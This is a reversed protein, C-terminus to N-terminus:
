GGGRAIEVRDLAPGGVPQALRREVPLVPLDEVPGPTGAVPGPLGVDDGLRQLLAAVAVEDDEAVGAHLRDAVVRQRRHRRQEGPEVARLAPDRHAHQVALRLPGPGLAVAEHQHLAVRRAVPVGVLDLGGPDGEHHAGGGAPEHGLPQAVRAIRPDDGVDRVLHAQRIELAEDVVAEILADQRVQDVLEVQLDRGQALRGLLDPRQDVLQLHVRHHRRAGGLVDRQALGPRRAGGRGPRAGAAGVAFAGGAVRREEEVGPEVPVGPEDEVEARDLPDRLDPDVVAPPLEALPRLQHPDPQALGLAVVVAEDEVGHVGVAM